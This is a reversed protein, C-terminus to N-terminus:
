RLSLWGRGPRRNSVRGSAAAVWLRQTAVASAFRDDNSVILTALGGVSAAASQIARASAPVDTEPLGLTPHEVLLVRPRHAIARALGVRFRAVPSATALRADRDERALGVVEALEDTRRLVPDALPDLDLTLPVALNQRVSLDDLLVVRANVIGFRDLFALWEAQDRLSATRTGDVAIEGQEPLATGTLLDVLVAAGPEDLGSLVTLDGPAVSLEELRLPRLGGYDKLVGRLRLLPTKLM